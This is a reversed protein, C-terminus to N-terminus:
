CLEEWIQMERSINECNV